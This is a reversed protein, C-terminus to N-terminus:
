EDFADMAKRLAEDQGDEAHFCADELGEWIVVYLFTELPIGKANAGMRCLRLLGPSIPIEQTKM